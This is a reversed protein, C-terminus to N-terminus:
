FQIEKLDFVPGDHCVMQLGKDRVSVACGQCVGTGCAMREELSVQWLGPTERIIKQVEISMCEPGCVFGQINERSAHVIEKLLLGTVLGSAGRSADETAIKMDVGRERFFAEDVIERGEKVGWFLTVSRKTKALEDALFFVPASGMGGAVIVADLEPDIKFGNGLPGMLEVFDGPKLRSMMATGRGVIRYLLEIEINDALRRHISFPRRLLPDNGQSIRLHVFQGPSSKTGLAPADLTMRFISETLKEQRVIACSENV